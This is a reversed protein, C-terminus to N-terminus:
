VLVPAPTSEALHIEGGGRGESGGERGGTREEKGRQRKTIALLPPETHSTRLVLRRCKALSCLAMQAAMHAYARAACLLTLAM